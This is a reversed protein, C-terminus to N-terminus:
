ERFPSSMLRAYEIARSILATDPVLIGAILRTAIDRPEISEGDILPASAMRHQETPTM